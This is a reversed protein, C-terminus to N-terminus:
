ILIREIENLMLDDRSRDCPKTTRPSENATIQGPRNSREAMARFSACRCKRECWKRILSGGQKMM